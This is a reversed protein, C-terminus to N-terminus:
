AEGGVGQLLHSHGHWELLQAVAEPLRMFDRTIALRYVPVIDTIRAARDLLVPMESGGLLGSLKSHAILSLAAHTSPLLTRRVASGEDHSVVPSLLYVAKLPIPEHTVQHYPLDGVLYKGLAEEALAPDLGNAAASDEWLRLTQIGPSVLPQTDLTIALTDDTILRAGSRVLAFATTSKGHFKPAMFAVAGGGVAVASAHLCYSGASHHALALVRGLLDMQVLEPSAGPAPYWVLDTGAELIDFTGTDDYEIRFGAPIRYLRARMSEMTEVEGLREGSPRAPMETSIRLTWTPPGPELRPLESLELESSLRGGFINYYNM